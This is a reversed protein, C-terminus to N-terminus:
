KLLAAVALCVVGAVGLILCAWAFVVLARRNQKRAGGCVICAGGDRPCHECFLYEYSM